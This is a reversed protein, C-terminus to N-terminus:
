AFDTRQGGPSIDLLAHVGLPLMNAVVRGTSVGERNEYLHGLMLLMAMKVTKPLTYVQPTEDPLSYGAVYRLRVSNTSDRATPWVQGYQLIVESPQGYPDLVYVSPPVTQEVGDVDDYKISVVELAPGYPITFSDAPFWNASLELTRQSFTSEMYHECYRCAAPIGINELWFDDDSEPPTGFTDVRLHAWAEALSLAEVAPEDIQRVRFQQLAAIQLETIYTLFNNM